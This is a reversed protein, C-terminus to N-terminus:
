ANLIGVKEDEKSPAAAHKEWIEDGLRTELREFMEVLTELRKEIAEFRKEMADFKSESFPLRALVAHSAKSADVVETKIKDFRRHTENGLTERSSLVEHYIRGTSIDIHHHLSSFAM